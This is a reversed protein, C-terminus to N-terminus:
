LGMIEEKMEYLGKFSRENLNPFDSLIKKLSKARQKDSYKAYKGRKIKGRKIRKAAPNALDEVAKRARINEAWSYLQWSYLQSPAQRCSCYHSFLSLRLKHLLWFEAALRLHVHWINHHVHLTGFAMAVVSRLTTNKHPTIM